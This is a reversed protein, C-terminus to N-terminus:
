TQIIQTYLFSVMECDIAYIKQGKLNSGPKTNPEPTEVWGEPKQFIDAMYSPIPYENEVMQELTLLYQTPDGKSKEALPLSLILLIDLLLFQLLPLASFAYVFSRM